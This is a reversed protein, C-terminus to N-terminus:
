NLFISPIALHFTDTTWWLQSRPYCLTNVSVTGMFHFLTKEATGFVSEQDLSRVAPPSSPVLSLVYHFSFLRSRLFYCAGNAGYWSRWVATNFHRPCLLVGLDRALPGSSTSVCGINALLQQKIQVVGLLGQWLQKTAICNAWLMQYKIVFSPFSGGEWEWGGVGVRGSWRGKLREQM